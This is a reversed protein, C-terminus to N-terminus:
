NIRIRSKIVIGTLFLYMSLLSNPYNSFLNTTDDPEEILIAKTINGDDTIHHYKKTLIWPNNPDSLDGQEDKSFISKPKLLNYFAHAFSLILTFFIFLFPIIRKAM